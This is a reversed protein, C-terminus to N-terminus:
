ECGFCCNQGGISCVSRIRTSSCPAHPESYRNYKHIATYLKSPSIVGLVAREIIQKVGICSDISWWWAGLYVVTSRELGKMCLLAYLVIIYWVM